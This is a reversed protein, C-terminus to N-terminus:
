GPVGAQATVGACDAGPPPGPGLLGPGSQRAVASGAKGRPQEWERYIDSENLVPWDRAGMMAVPPRCSVFPSLGFHLRADMDYRERYGIGGPRQGKVAIDETQPGFPQDAGLEFTVLGGRVPRNRHETEAAPEDQRPCSRSLEIARRLWRRDQALQG